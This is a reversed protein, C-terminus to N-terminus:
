KEEKEFKKRMKEYKARERKEKNKKVTAARKDSAAQKKKEIKEQTEMMKVYDSITEPITIPSECVIVYKEDAFVTRNKNKVWIVLKKYTEKSVEDWETPQLETQYDDTDDYHGIIKLIKIKM